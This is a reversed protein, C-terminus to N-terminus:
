PRTATVVAVAGELPVGTGDHRETYDAILAARVADVVEAPQDVLASRVSGMALNTEAIREVPGPGLAYMRLVRPDFVVDRWGAAELTSVVEAPDGWAFPGADAPGVDLQVGRGAAAEVAIDLPIQMVESCGRPQWVVVCLRGGERVASGINALAGVADDFFMVGFRSIVADYRADGFDYRQADGVIWEVGLDPSTMARAQDILEASIDLGTAQGAPGVVQAARRTTVGRGCGVDLVREGPRLQSAASLLDAVPELQAEAHDAVAAWRRAADTAWDASAYGAGPGTGAPEEDHM